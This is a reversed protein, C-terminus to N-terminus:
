LESFIKSLTKLGAIGDSKLGKTSQYDAIVRRARFSFSTYKGEAADAQLAFLLRSAWDAPSLGALDEKPILTPEAGDEAPPMPEGLATTIRQLNATIAKIHNNIRDEKTKGFGEYYHKEYMQTSVARISSPVIKMQKYLIRAVDAMGEVPGPYKRFCIQYKTSTGDANPHSDTYLFATDPNCPPRGAQVAGMNWSGVGENKWGQGYGSETLAIVQVFQRELLTPERGFISEFGDEAWKKAESHSAM